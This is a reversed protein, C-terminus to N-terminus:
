EKKRVVTIRKFVQDVSCVWQELEPYKKYIEEWMRRRAEGITGLLSRLVMDGGTLIDLELLILSDIESELQIQDGEEYKKKKAM